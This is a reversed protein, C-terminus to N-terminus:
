AGGRLGLVRAAEKTLERDNFIGMNIMNSSKDKIHKNLELLLATAAIRVKNDAGLSREEAYKDL